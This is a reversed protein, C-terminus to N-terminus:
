VKAELADDLIEEIRDFDTYPIEILKIGEQECYKRMAEDRQQQHKLQKEGYLPKYHQDGNYEIIINPNGPLFFDPFFIKRKGIAVPTRITKHHIYDIGHEDLYVRVKTEGKSTQCKPCGNMGQLHDQPAVPFQGHEPCIVIVNTKNNVYKVKSYDYRDGHIERAKRIFEDKGMCYLTKQMDRKCWKCGEGNLHNSPWQKFPGHTPCIITIKERKGNYVTQSYDYKDGHITKCQAIFEDQNKRRAEKVADVGCVPCGHGDLFDYANAPFEGHKKCIIIVKKKNGKYDVKDYLYRDGWVEKARLIFEETTKLKNNACNPCGHGVLHSKPTQPFVDNCTNCKILVPTTNGQYEVLSYDYKDGHIVKAKNIFEITNSRLANKVKEAGCDPCGHGNYYHNIPTQHFPGHIPCIITVEDTMRKLEVKSYDYKDGHVARAKELFEEMTTLPHSRKYGCDRCGKGQLHSDPRQPFVKGCKTCKIFVETSNNVYEVLSYDYHGEGHKAIAREIFQEKTLRKPM